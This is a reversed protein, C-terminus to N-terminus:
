PFPGSEEGFDMESWITINECQHVIRSKAAADYWKLAKEIDGGVGGDRIRSYYDSFLKQALAHGRKASSELRAATDLWLETRADEELDFLEGVLLADVDPLGHAHM